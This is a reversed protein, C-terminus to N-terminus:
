AQSGCVTTRRSRIIMTKWGVRDEVAKRVAEAFVDDVMSEGEANSLIHPSTFDPFVSLM